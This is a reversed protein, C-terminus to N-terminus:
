YAFNEFLRRLDGGWEERYLELLVEAPSKGSGVIDRVDDLFLTEDEGHGNLKARRSLGGAGIEVVEKALAQLPRGRHPTKLGLKPAVLRLTEREEATWGKILDAAADLAQSDYLLGVWFAPLACIRSWPGGDAGRMEIFRKLRAEPFLTSLHDEWDGITPKEGPVAPCRGDMFERFTARRASLFHDNRRIFYMPVDLAWDVYQEFGFGPEFAFPLMGTRDPDTDAWVHARLSLWGNPKGDAFPSNAFIATAVPQLALGVRLKKAMDAESSYDLNVQVTCTRFMMERGLRGSTLMYDRMLGYRGKPVLPMDALAWTPAFGVGLFGAGMEDALERVEKLHSSTEGCTQHLDDLAAGSLELQGGPELSVSASNRRAGIPVGEERVLEWGFREFGEVMRRVSPGGKPDEFPLPALDDLRFGFKEHETGIRWSQAPKSGKEMWDALDAASEVPTPDFAGAMSM